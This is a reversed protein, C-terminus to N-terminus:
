QGFGVHQALRHPFLDLLQNLLLQAVEHLPSDRATVGLLRDFLDGRLDLREAAVAEVLGVGDGVRDKGVLRRPELRVIGRLVHRRQQRRFDAVGIQDYLVDVLRALEVQLDQRGVYVFRAVLERDDPVMDALARDGRDDRTSALRGIAREHLQAVADVQPEAVLADDFRQDIRAGAVREAALAGLQDGGEIVGEAFRLYALVFPEGSLVGQEAVCGWGRTGLGGQGIHRGPGFLLAQYPFFRHEAEENGAVGEGLVAGLHLKKPGARRGRQASPARLLHGDRRDDGHHLPLGGLLRPRFVRAERELVKVARRLRQHEGLGPGLQVAHNM